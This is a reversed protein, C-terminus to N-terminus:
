GSEKRSNMRSFCSNAWLCKSYAQFGKVASAGRTYLCPRMPMTCLYSIGPNTICRIGRLLCSRGEHPLSPVLRVGSPARERGVAGGASKPGPLYVQAASRREAM